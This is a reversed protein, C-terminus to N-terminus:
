ERNEDEVIAGFDILLDELLKRNYQRAIKLATLGKSSTANVDAGYELLIRVIRVHNYYVAFMLASWGFHDILDPDAYNDILRQVAHARGTSCALMLVSRGNRDQRNVDAGLKFLLEFVENTRQNNSQIVCQFLPTWGLENLPVDVHAGKILLKTEIQRFAEAKDPAYELAEHCLTLPTHIGDTTHIDVGADLLLHIYEVNGNLFAMLLPSQRKNNRHELTAGRRILYRIMEAYGDHQCVTGLPTNGLSDAADIDLGKNLLYAVLKVHNSKVAPHLLTREQEDRAFLKDRTRDSRALALLDGRRAADFMSSQELYMPPTKTLIYIGNKYGISKALGLATTGDADAIDPSAGYRMLLHLTEDQRMKVATHLPTQTKHNRINVDAGYSLLTQVIEIRDHLIAHILPPTHTSEAHDVDFGDLIRSEIGNRDGDRVADLFDKHPQEVIHAEHPHYMPTKLILASHLREMFSM